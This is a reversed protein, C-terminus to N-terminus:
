VTALFKAAQSGVPESFFPSRFPRSFFRTEQFRLPDSSAPARALRCTWLFKLFVILLFALLAVPLFRREFRPRAYVSRLLALLSSYVRLRGEFSRELAQAFRCLFLRGQWLDRM